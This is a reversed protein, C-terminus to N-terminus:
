HVQLLNWFDKGMIKRPHWDKSVDYDKRAVLGSFQGEKGDRGGKEQRPKQDCSSFFAVLSLGVIGMNRM